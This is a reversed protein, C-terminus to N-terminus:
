QQSLSPNNYTPPNKQKELIKRMHDARDTEYEMEWENKFYPLRYPRGFLTEYSTLGKTTTINYHLKVLDLCEMTKSNREHM